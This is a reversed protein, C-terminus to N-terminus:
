MLKGTLYLTYRSACIDTDPHNMYPGNNDYGRMAVPHSYYKSTSQLAATYQALWNQNDSLAREVATMNTPNNLLGIGMENERKM